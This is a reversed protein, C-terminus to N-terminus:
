AADQQDQKPHHSWAKTEDYHQGTRLCGHLVGVLRNALQRLAAHHRPHGRLLAADSTMLLHARDQATWPGDAIVPRSRARGGGVAQRRCLCRAGGATTTEIRERLLRSRERRWRPGGRRREPTSPRGKVRLFPTRASRGAPGEHSGHCTGSGQPSRPERLRSRRGRARWRATATRVPAHAGHRPLAETPAGARSRSARVDPAAGGRPSGARRGPCRTGADGQALRSQTAPAATTTNADTRHPAPSAAGHRARRTPDASHPSATRCRPGTTGTRGRAAKDISL